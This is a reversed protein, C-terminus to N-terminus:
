LSPFTRIYRRVTEGDADRLEVEIRKGNVGSSLEDARVEFEYPPAEVRAVEDGGSTVVVREYGPHESVQCEVLDDSVSCELEATVDSGDDGLAGQFDLTVPGVPATGLVLVIAFFVTLNLKSSHRAVWRLRSSDTERRWRIATPVVLFHTLPGWLLLLFGYAMVYTLFWWSSQFSYLLNSGAWCFLGLFILGASKILRWIPTNAYYVSLVDRWVQRLVWRISSTPSSDDATPPQDPM